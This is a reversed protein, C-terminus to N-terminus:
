PLDGVVEAINKLQEVFSDEKWSYFNHLYKSKMSIKGSKTLPYFKISWPVRDCIDSDIKFQGILDIDKIKVLKNYVGAEQLVTTLFDHYKISFRHRAKQFDDRAQNMEEYTVTM